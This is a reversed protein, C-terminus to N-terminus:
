KTKILVNKFFYSISSILLQVYNTNNLTEFKLNTKTIAIMMMMMMMMMMTMAMMSSLGPCSTIKLLAHAEVPISQLKRNSVGLADEGSLQKPTQSEKYVKKRTHSNKNCNQQKFRDRSASLSM